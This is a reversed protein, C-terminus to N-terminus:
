ARVRVRRRVLRTANGANDRARLAIRVAPRRGRRIQRRLARKARRTLRVRLTARRGPVTTGRARHFWYSRRRIVFRGIASLRCPEGCRAYVLVSGRRLARQLRPIRTVLRPAVTDRPPPAAAPPRPNIRLVKGLLSGRNQADGNTDGQGGGDGTSVYLYGDPGFQLQGGNHNAESSHEITLVRRRSTPEARDPDGTSRRLEDVTLDGDTGTYFVYLRGSAAYDPALAISQLGREGDTSVRSTQDLFTRWTGGSRVKIRGAREAVFLRSTEGRPATLHIPGDLNGVSTSTLTWPSGGPQLRLVPGQLSVAYLRGTGDEGFSALWPVDLLTDAPPTSGSSSLQTSLVDGDFFDGFLYRGALAPLTPDRVV